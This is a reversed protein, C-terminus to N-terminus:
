AAGVARTIAALSPIFYPNRWWLPLQEATPLYSQDDRYKVGVIGDADIEVWPAGGRRRMVAMNQEVLLRLVPVLDEATFAEAIHLWRDRGDDADPATDDAAMEGAMASVAATDIPPRTSEWHADIESAVDEIRWGDQALLFSFVSTAPAIVRECTIIKRLSRALQSAAEGATSAARAELRSIAALTSYGDDDPGSELVLRALLIQAPRTPDGAVGHVLTDRYTEREVPILESLEICEAVSDLRATWKAARPEIQARGQSVLDVLHRANAGWVSALRPAYVSEIVERARDTLWPPERNLLGSVRAPSSYLGWLGYTRQDGLIQDGREPSIPIRSSSAKLRVREIGRIGTDDLRLYRAYAALQEWVLFVDADRREARSDAVQDVLWYGILLTVFDPLSTSVTTLNTVVRRGFSAWLQQTGLPDRSGRVAAREDLATLFPRYSIM